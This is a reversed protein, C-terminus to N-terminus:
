SLLNGVSPLDLRGLASPPKILHKGQKLFLVPCYILDGPSLRNVFINVRLAAYETVIFM